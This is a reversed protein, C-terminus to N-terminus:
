TEEVLVRYTNRKDVKHAADDAWGMKRLKIM